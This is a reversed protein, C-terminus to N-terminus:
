SRLAEKMGSVYHYQLLLVRAPSFSRALRELWRLAAPLAALLSHAGLSLPNMGLLLPIRLDRHKRYFRVTSRGALRMRACREELGVPHWHYNIALPAYHIKVGFRVLRYGLELDEHGYGTFQEDFMGVQLLTSRLASANGTLFYHWPLLRRTPRHRAWKQPEQRARQYEELSQVQIECGVVADGPFTRHLRVHQAILEPDAIIDADTFLVIRGRAARIGANRAAARGSYDGPLWRLNPLALKRVLEATGDTSGADCLLIEYQERPFSQRALSPLVESLTDCRNFTPVVVSVVPQPQRQPEHGTELVRLQLM